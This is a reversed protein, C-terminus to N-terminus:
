SSDICALRRDMTLNLSHLVEQSPRFLQLLLRFSLFKSLRLLNTANKYKDRYVCELGSLTMKPILAEAIDKSAQPPMLKDCNIVLVHNMGRIQPGRTSSAADGSPSGEQEAAGNSRVFKAKYPRIGASSSKSLVRPPGIEWNSQIGTALDQGVWTVGAGPGSATISRNGVVSLNQM